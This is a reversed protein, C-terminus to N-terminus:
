GNERAEKRELVDIMGLLDLYFPRIDHRHTLGGQLYMHDGRVAPFVNWCGPAPNAKDLPVAPADTPAAASVTNM